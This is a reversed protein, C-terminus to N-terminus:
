NRKLEANLDDPHWPTFLCWVRGGPELLNMLNERFYTRVRDRDSKSRIAKVDVIDDCVLLDARTGTAGSGVGLCTVSPGIAEAPRRVTFRDAEWPKAPRLNEFVARVFPNGAIAARLFRGREAAVEETACIMKIRLSPDRGLEWIIRICVQVSKGHDRPL